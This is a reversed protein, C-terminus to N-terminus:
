NAIKNRKDDLLAKAQSNEEEKKMVWSPARLTDALLKSTGKEEAIKSKLLPVHNKMKWKSKLWRKKTAKTNTSTERM